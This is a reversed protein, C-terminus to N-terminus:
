ATFTAFYGDFEVTLPGSDFVEGLTGDCRETATADGRRLAEDVNVEVLLNEYTGRADWLEVLRPCRAAAYESTMDVATGRGARACMGVSTCM